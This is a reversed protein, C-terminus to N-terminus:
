LHRESESGLSGANDAHQVAIHCALVHSPLEFCSWDIEIDLRKPLVCMDLLLTIMMAIDDLDSSGHVRACVQHHFKSAKVKSALM